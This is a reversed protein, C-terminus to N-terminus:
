EADEIIKKLRALLDDPKENLLKIIEDTQEDSIEKITTEEEYSKQRHEAVRREVTSADEPKIKIKKLEHNLNLNNELTGEVDM